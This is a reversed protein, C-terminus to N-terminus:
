KRRGRRPELARPNIGRIEESLSEIAQALSEYRSLKTEMRTFDEDLKEMEVRDLHWRIMTLRQSEERNLDGNVEKLALPLREELLDQLFSQQLEEIRDASVLNSLNFGHVVRVREVASARAASAEHFMTSGSDVILDFLADTMARRSGLAVQPRTEAPPYLIAQDTATRDSDM